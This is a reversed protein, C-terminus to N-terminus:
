RAGRPAPDPHTAADLAAALEDLDFRRDGGPRHVVWAAPRPGHEELEVVLSLECAGYGLRLRFDADGPQLPPQRDLRRGWLVEGVLGLRGLYAKAAARCAERTLELDAARGLAGLRDLEALRERRADDGVTYPRTV